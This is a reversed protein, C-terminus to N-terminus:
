NQTGWKYALRNLKADGSIGKGLATEKEPDCRGATAALGLRSVDSARIYLEAVQATTIKGMKALFWASEARVVEFTDSTLAHAWVIVDDQASSAGPELQDALWTMWLRAWPSQRPLKVLKALLRWNESHEIRAAAYRVVNLIRIPEREAIRILESNPIREQAGRLATLAKSGFHSHLSRDEKEDRAWGSVVERLAAFDVEEVEPLVEVEEYEDYDVQVLDITRLAESATERFRELRQNRLLIEAHAHRATSIKTKGEALVLGCERALSGAHEIAEFANEANETAVRFDDAYRHLSFGSRILNREIIGLYSDALSHSPSMAQPIGVGRPFVEGLFENLASVTGSKLTQLTLEKKLIDHNIYEYCAAIDFDVVRGQAPASRGTGFELHEDWDGDRSPLPLGPELNKVLAYYLTRAQPSLITIPRPSLGKKPMTITESACPNGLSYIAQAQTALDTHSGTLARESVLHPMQSLPKEIVTKAADNFALTSASEKTIKM